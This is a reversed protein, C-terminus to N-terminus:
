TPEQEAVILANMGDKHPLYPWRWIMQWGCERLVTPYDHAWCPVAGGLSYLNPGEYPMLHANPEFLVVYTAVKQLGSLTAKLDDPEVYALAYCSMVCDWSEDPLQPLATNDIKVGLYESAWAAMGPSPESGGLVLERPYKEKILRLNPGSGCGIEYLSDLPPLTKLADVLHHRHEAQWSEWMKEASSRAEHTQVWWKTLDM